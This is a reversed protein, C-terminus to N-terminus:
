VEIECEKVVFISKFVTVDFFFMMFLLCAFFSERPLSYFVFEFGKRRMKKCSYISFKFKNLVVMFLFSKLIKNYLISFLLLLVIFPSLFPMSFISVFTKKLQWKKCCLFQSFFTKKAM